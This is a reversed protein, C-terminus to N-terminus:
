RPSGEPKSELGGDRRSIRALGLARLARVNPKNGAVFYTKALSSLVGNIISAEGEERMARPQDTFRPGREHYHVFSAGWAEPNRELGSTIRRTLALQFDQNRTRLTACEFGGVDNTTVFTSGSFQTSKGTFGRVPKGPQKQRLMDEIVGKAATDFDGTFQASWTRSPPLREATGIIDIPRVTTAENIRISPNFYRAGHTARLESAFTRADRRTQTMSTTLTAPQTDDDVTLVRAGAFLLSAWNRQEAASGKWADGDYWGLLADVTSKANADDTAVTRKLMRDIVARMQAKEATGIIRM